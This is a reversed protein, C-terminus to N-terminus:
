IVQFFYNGNSIGCKLIKVTQGIKPTDPIKAMVKIEEDFEVLCFYMDDQRSFEIIKGEHAKKKLSIEGFCHNCFESPPWVM